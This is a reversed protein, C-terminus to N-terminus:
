HKFFYTLQRPHIRQGVVRLVFVGETKLLALDLHPQRVHLLLPVFSSASAPFGEM